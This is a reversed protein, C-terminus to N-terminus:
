EPRRNVFRAARFPRSTLHWLGCQACRYPRHYGFQRLLKRAAQNAHDESLYAHKGSSCFRLGVTM